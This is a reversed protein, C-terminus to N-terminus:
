MVEFWGGRVFLDARRGELEDSLQAAERPGRLHVFERECAGYVLYGSRGM